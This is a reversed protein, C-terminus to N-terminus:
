SANHCRIWRRWGCCGCGAVWFQGCTSCCCCDVLPAVMWLDRITESDKPDKPKRCVAPSLKYTKSWKLKIRPSWFRCRTYFFCLIIYVWFRLATKTLQPFCSSARRNDWRERHKNAFGSPFLPVPLWFSGSEASEWCCATHSAHSYCLQWSM